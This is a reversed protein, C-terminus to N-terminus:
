NKEEKLQQLQEDVIRNVDTLASQLDDSGSLRSNYGTHVTMSNPSIGAALLNNLSWQEVTGNEKIIKSYDVKKWEIIESGDKGYKVIREFDDVLPSYQSCAKEIFNSIETKKVM